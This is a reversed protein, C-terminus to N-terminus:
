GIKPVAIVVGNQDVELWVRNCCVNYPRLNGQPLLIVTVYQNEKETKAKAVTRPSGVLEAWELKM